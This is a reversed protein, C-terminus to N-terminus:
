IWTRAFSYNTLYFNLTMGETNRKFRTYLNLLLVCLLIFVIANAVIHYRHYWSKLLEKILLLGSQICCWTTDIIYFCQWQFQVITCLKKCTGNFNSANGGVSVAMAMSGLYWQGYGYQCKLGTTGWCPNRYKVDAVNSKLITITKTIM